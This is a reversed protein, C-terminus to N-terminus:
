QSKKSKFLSKERCLYKCIFDPFNETSLHVMLRVTGYFINDFSGHFVVYNEPLYPESYHLLKNDCGTTYKEMLNDASNINNSEPDHTTCVCFPFKNRDWCINDECYAPNNELNNLITSNSSDICETTFNYTQRYLVQSTYM